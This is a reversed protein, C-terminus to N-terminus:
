KTELDYEYVWSEDNTILTNKFDPDSNTSDRFGFRETMRLSFGVLSSFVVESLHQKGDVSAISLRSFFERM